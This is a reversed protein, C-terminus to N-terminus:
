QRVNVDIYEPMGGPPIDEPLDQLRMTQFDAFRSKSLDPKLDRQNCKEHSCKMPPTVIMGYLIGDNPHNDPCRFIMNSAQPKVESARVVMGSVSTMKGIVESNIKRLSRHMPYNIIRARIDQKHKKAYDRFKIALIETIAAAFAKLSMDADKDLMHTIKGDETVLDNYDIVAYVANKSPMEDIQRVYSLKGESDRHTLMLERMKDTM